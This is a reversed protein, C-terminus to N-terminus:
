PLHAALAGLDPTGWGTPYDWGVAARHTASGGTVIDHFSQQVAPTLYLLSNLFGAAPLGNDARSSNLVAMMGAFAPTAFSTGTDLSWKGGFYYVMDQVNISVDVTGRRPQDQIPALSQQYYPKDFSASPGSGSDVWASEGAGTLTTGGVATVHPCSAPMDVEGSDGSAAVVTIGLAAAMEAAYEHQQRLQPPRDSEHHSFSTSVVQAEGAGIAENFLYAVTIDLPDPGQYLILQAGPAMGGAWQVDLTAEEDYFNPPELVQRLIPNSRHVGQGLWFSQADSMRVGGGGVIGITVGQGQDSALTGVQYASMIRM